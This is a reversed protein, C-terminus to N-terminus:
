FVFCIFLFFVSCAMHLLGTRLTGEHRRNWNRGEPKQGTKLSPAHGSLQLIFCSREGQNAKPWTMKDYCYFGSFLCAYTGPPPPILFGILYQMDWISLCGASYVVCAFNPTLFCVPRPIVFNLSMVLNLSLFLDSTSAWLWPHSFSTPVSHTSASIWLESYSHSYLQTHM